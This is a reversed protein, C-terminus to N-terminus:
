NTKIFKKSHLFNMAYKMNGVGPLILKKLVQYIKKQKFILKPNYGINRISNILNFINSSNYCIVGVEKM